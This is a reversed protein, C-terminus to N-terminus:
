RCCSQSRRYCTVTLHGRGRSFHPAAPSWVLTAMHAGAGLLRRRRCHLFPPRRALHSFPYTPPSIPSSILQTMACPGARPGCPRGSAWVHRVWRLWPAFKTGTQIVHPCSFYKPRAAPFLKKWGPWFRILISPRHGNLDTTPSARIDWTQINRTKIYKTVNYFFPPDSLDCVAM